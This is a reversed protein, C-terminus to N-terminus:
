WRNGGYQAEYMQNVQQQAQQEIERKKEWPWNHEEVLKTVEGAAIGALIEKALAHKMPQGQAEQRKAYMRMAEFAVAGGIIEHSLHAKKEQYVQRHADQWQPPSMMPNYGSPQGYGGQQFGGQQFGGQQNEYQIYSEQVYSQQYGNSLGYPVCVFRQNANDGWAKRGYLIAHAGDRDHDGKIDMVLDPGTALSFIFGEPDITWQMKPGNQCLHVEQQAYGGEVDIAQGSLKNVLCGNQFTWLQNDNQYDKRHYFCLRTGPSLSDGEVDLVRQPYKQSQIFFYCGQPFAM